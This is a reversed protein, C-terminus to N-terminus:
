EPSDARPIWVVDCHPAAIASIAKGARGMRDLQFGEYGLGRLLACVDEASYGAAQFTDSNVELLIIPRYRRISETAGRLVPLEAGEVDIKLLDFRTAAMSELVDDLRHVEATGCVAVDQDAAYMTSTGENWGIEQDPSFAAPAYLAAEGREDGLCCNHAIVNTLGNLRVNAQLREYNAQIPEFAIVQGQTLRRAAFLSVEGQNAGVDVLTMDPRLYQDICHLIRHAYWGRWYIAGGIHHNPVVCMQLGRDAHDVIV